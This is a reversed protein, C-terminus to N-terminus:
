HKFYFQEHIWALKPDRSGTVNTQKCLEVIATNSIARGPCLSDCSHTNANICGKLVDQQGEKCQLRVVRLGKTQTKLDINSAM